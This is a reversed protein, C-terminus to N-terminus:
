RLRVIRPQTVAILGTLIQAGNTTKISQGPTSKCLKAAKLSGYYVPTDLKLMTTCLM